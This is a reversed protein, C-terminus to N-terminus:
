AAAAPPAAFRIGVEGFRQIIRRLAQRQVFSPRGPRATFKCRIVMTDRTVDLAGQLKLPQIFENGLERDELLELGVRKVTKRVLELDATPEIHLNFRVVAWDRSSNTVALIQGFPVTHVQGSQHRLRLSRLSIGEVTGKLRGTDIYEGVRFADEFLFFVGSIVDRVLSQAGFGVAIGIVGAGALLPGINFGLHSLATM